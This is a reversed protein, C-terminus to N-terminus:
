HRLRLQGAQSRVQDSWLESRCQMKSGDVYGRNIASGQNYIENLM